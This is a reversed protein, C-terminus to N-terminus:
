PRLVFKEVHRLHSNTETLQSQIINGNLPKEFLDIIIILILQRREITQCLRPSNTACYLVEDEGLGVDCVNKPVNEERWRLLM